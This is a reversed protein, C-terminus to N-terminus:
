ETNDFSYDVTDDLSYEDTEDSSNLNIIVPDIALQIGEHRRLENEIKITHQVCKEWNTKTVMDFAENVLDKVDRLKFTGITELLM